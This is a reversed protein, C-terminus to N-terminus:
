EPPTLCHPALLQGDPDIAHVPAEVGVRVEAEGMWADAMAAMERLTILNTEM